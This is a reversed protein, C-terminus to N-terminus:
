EQDNEGGKVLRRTIGFVLVPCGGNRGASLRPLLKGVHTSSSGFKKIGIERFFLQIDAGRTVLIGVSIQDYEFFTRFAFLDRDYTQDKSSWELDFAIRGKIYDVKHTDYLVENDGALLRAKLKNETWGMPRLLSSFRKPIDSENGGPKKAEEITFYFQSLAQFIERALDPFENALIAAAHKYDYVEYLKRIEIPIYDKWIM